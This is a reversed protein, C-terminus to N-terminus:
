REASGADFSCFVLWGVGDWMAVCLGVVGRSLCNRTLHTQTIKQSGKCFEGHSAHYFSWGVILRHMSHRVNWQVAAGCYYAHLCEDACHM